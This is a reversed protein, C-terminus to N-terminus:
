CKQFLVIHSDSWFEELLPVCKAKFKNLCVAVVLWFGWHGFGRGDIDDVIDIINLGPVHWWWCSSCHQHGKMLRVWSQWFQKCWKLHCTCGDGWSAGQHCTEPLILDNAPLSENPEQGALAEQKGLDDWSTDWAWGHRILITDMAPGLGYGPYVWGDM